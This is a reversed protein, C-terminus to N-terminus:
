AKIYVEKATVMKGLHTTEQIMVNPNAPLITRKCVIPLNIARSVLSDGEIGVVFKGQLFAPTSYLIKCHKDFQLIFIILM